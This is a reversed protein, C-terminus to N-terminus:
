LRTCIHTHVVYRVWQDRHFTDLKLYTIDLWIKTVSIKLRGFEFEVRLNFEGTMEDLYVQLHPLDKDICGANSVVFLYGQDTKTVILDDQITGKDTTFLTLSAQNDALGQVDAVVLSEMFAVRDKGHIKTQLM